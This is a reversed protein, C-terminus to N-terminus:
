KNRKAKSVYLISSFMSKMIDADEFYLGLIILSHITKGERIVVANGINFSDQVVMAFYSQDGLDLVNPIEQIKRGKVFKTGIHYAGITMKFSEKADKETRNIEANSSLYLFDSLTDRESDYSYELELSGDLNTKASYKGCSEPYLEKDTYRQFNDYNLLLLKEDETLERTSIGNYGFYLLGGTFTIGLIVLCIVIIVNRMFLGKNLIIGWIQLSDNFGLINM